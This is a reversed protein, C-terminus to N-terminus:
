KKCNVNVFKVDPINETKEEGEKVAVNKKASDDCLLKFNFGCTM